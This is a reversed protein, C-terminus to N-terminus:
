KGLLGAARAAPSKPPSQGTPSLHVAPGPNGPGQGEGEGTALGSAGKSTASTRTSQRARDSDEKAEDLVRGTPAESNGMLGELGATASQLIAAPKTVISWLVDSNLDPSGSYAKAYESCAVSMLIGGFTTLPLSVGKALSSLVSEPDAHTPDEHRSGQGMLTEAWSVMSKKIRSSEVAVDLNDYGQMTLGSLIDWLNDEDDGTGWHSIRQKFAAREKRHKRWHLAPIGQNFMKALQTVDSKAWDGPEYSSTNDSNGAPLSGTSAASPANTTSTQPGTVSRRSPHTESPTKAASSTRRWSSWLGQGGPM